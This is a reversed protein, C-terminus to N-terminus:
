GLKSKELERATAFNIKTQEGASRLIDEVVEPDEDIGNQALRQQVLLAHKRWPDQPKKRRFIDFVSM